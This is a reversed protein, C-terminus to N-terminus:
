KREGAFFLHLLLLLIGITIASDALNFNPFRYLTNGWKIQASPVLIFDVVYGHQVRDILNGIAGGLVLGFSLRLQRRALGGAAEQQLRPASAVIIIVVGVALLALLWGANTFLGFAAGTNETYQLVLWGPLADLQHSAQGRGIASVIWGKSLQDAVVVVAALILLPVVARVRAAPTM